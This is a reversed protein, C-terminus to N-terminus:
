TKTVNGFCFVAQGVSVSGKRGKKGKRSDSCGTVGLM